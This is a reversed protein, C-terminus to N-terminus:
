AIQPTRLIAESIPGDCREEGAGTLWIVRGHHNGRYIRSGDAFECLCSRTMTVYDCGGAVIHVPHEYYAYQYPRSLVRGIMGTTPYCGDVVIRGSDDVYAEVPRYPRDLNGRYEIAVYQRKKLGIGRGDYTHVGYGAVENGTNIQATM